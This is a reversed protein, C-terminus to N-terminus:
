FATRSEGLLKEEAALEDRLVRRRMDDRGKQTEADVRPFGNSSTRAPPVAVSGNGAPPRAAAKETPQPGTADPVNFYSFGGSGTECKYMAGEVQKPKGTCGSEKAKETLTAGVAPPAALATILAAICGLVRPSLIRLRFPFRSAAPM